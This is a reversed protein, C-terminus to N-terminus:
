EFLIHKSGSRQPSEFPRQHLFSQNNSNGLTVERHLQRHNFLLSWLGLFNAYSVSILFTLFSFLVSLPFALGTHTFAFFCYQPFLIQRLFLRLLWTSLKTLSTLSAINFWDLPVEGCLCKDM